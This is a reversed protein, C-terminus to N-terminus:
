MSGAAPIVDLQFSWGFFVASRRSMAPRMEGVDFHRPLERGRLVACFDREVDHAAFSRLEVAVIRRQKVAVATVADAHRRLKSKVRRSQNSRPPM